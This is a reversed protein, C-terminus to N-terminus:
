FKQNTEKTFEMYQELEIIKRKLASSSDLITGFLTMTDSLAINESKIESDLVRLLCDLRWIEKSIFKMNKQANKKINKATPENTNKKQKM